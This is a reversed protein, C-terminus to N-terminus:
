SFLTLIICSWVNRSFILVLHLVCEGNIGKSGGNGEEGDGDGSGEEGDFDWSGAFPFWNTVGERRAEM